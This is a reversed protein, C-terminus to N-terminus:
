WKYALSTTLRHVTYNPNVAGMFISYPAGALAANYTYNLATNQWNRVRNQEFAYGLSAVLKGDLGMQKVWSDAFTYKATIDARNMVTDTPQYNLLTLAIANLPQTNHSKAFTYSAKIDINDLPKSDLGVRFTHLTDTVAMTEMRSGSGITGVGPNGMQYGKSMHEYMYFAFLRTSSTMDYSLDVGPRIARNWRVGQQWLGYMNNGMSGAVGNNTLFALMGSNGGLPYDDNVYQISPTVRVGPLVTVGMQFDLKFRSRGALYPQIQNPMFMVNSPKGLTGVPGWQFVGENGMYNYNHAFRRALLASTRFDLWTTPKYDAWAKGTLEDTSTASERQYDYREWGGSAGLNLVKWPKWTIEESANQKVYKMTLSSLPAYGNATPVFPNGTTVIGTGGADAGIYGPLYITPTRNDYNYYRYSLKSKIDSTIDTTVVNNSLYTNVNGNLSRAPLAMLSNAQVGGPFVLAPNITFPLFPDNQQMNNFSFTGVYRSKFPLGAAFTASAGNAFNSAPTSMMSVPGANVLPGTAPLPPAGPWGANCAGGYCFPNQVIYYKYNDTYMSGNYALKLTYTKDWPATGEYEASLGYNKTSDNVPKPVQQTNNTAWSQVVGDIQTGTRQLNSFHARVDWSSNPTYRYDGSITDRRIGIDTAHSNANLIGWIAAASGAGTLATGVGGPVWLVNGGVGYFPTQASTSYVHPTQDYNIDLYHQGAKSFEFGYAQDTYGINKGWLDVRYVGDTTGAALAVNSFPGPKLTSYEYYKALSHGLAPMAGHQPQNLFFRGGVEVFGSTWWAGEVIIEPPGKRTPLDAALASSTPGLGVLLAGVACTLLLRTRCTLM